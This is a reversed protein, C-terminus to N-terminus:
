ELAVPGIDSRHLCIVLGVHSQQDLSWCEIHIIQLPHDMRLTLLSRGDLDACVRAGFTIQEAIAAAYISLNRARDDRWTYHNGFTRDNAVRDQEGVRNDFSTCHNLM